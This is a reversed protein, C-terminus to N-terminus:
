SRRRGGRVVAETLEYAAGMDKLLQKRVMQVNHINPDAHRAAAVAHSRAAVYTGETADLRRRIETVDLNSLDMQVVLEDIRSAWRDLARGFEDSDRRPGDDIEPRAIRSATCTTMPM